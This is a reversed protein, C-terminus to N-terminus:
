KRLTKSSQRRLDPVTEGLAERRPRGEEQTRVHGKETDHMGPTQARTEKRTFVGTLIPKPGDQCGGKLKIVDKFARSWVSMKQPVLPLPKKKLFNNKTKM